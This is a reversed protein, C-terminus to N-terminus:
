KAPAPEAFNVIEIRATVNLKEDGVVIKLAAPKPAVPNGVGPAPPNQNGSPPPPPPPPPAAAETKSPGKDTQNEISISSPIFIQTKSSILDNVFNRFQPESAVFKLEIWHREVLGKDNDKDKGKDKDKQSSRSDSPPSPAIGEEPLPERKIEELAIVGSDIMINLALEIAELSRQLPAAAEPKPPVGRYPDFGMYFSDEVPKDSKSLSVKRSVAKAHVRRVAERLNDQFREPQTPKLPIQAKILEKHLADIEAQHKKQVEQMQKVNEQEPFPQQTQLGNLETAKATYDQQAQDYKAKASFALFGLGGGLILVILLFGSLFKNQKIWDM